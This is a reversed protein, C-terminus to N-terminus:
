VARPLAGACTPCFQTGAARAIEDLARARPMARRYPRHSVMADYADCVAVVRSPLPIREARLGDPYGRGDWREHAARIAPALHSLGDVREVIRAGADSHRRVVDWDRDDLAGGGALVHDPLAIKGLDHLLSGFVLEERRRPELGLREAVAAVYASVEESHGGVFPDKAAIADALMAVTGVYSTRLEGRLQENHLVAGAHDGLALLVDDELEEFGDKRNACVVVGTFEDRLYIPIAVLNDIEEDADTRAKRDLARSDNERVTEDQRIVREAFERAIASEGPDHDFGEACALRLGGDGNRTLLLGKGADLVDIAIRLVLERTDDARTLAGHSQHLSVVQSRLERAWAREAQRSRELQLRTRREADFRQEGERRLEELRRKADQRAEQLEQRAIADRERLEAALREHEERDARRRANERQWAALVAAGALLALVLAPLAGRRLEGLTAGVLLSALLWLAAAAIIAAAILFLM